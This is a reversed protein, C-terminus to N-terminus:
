ATQLNHNGGNSHGTRHVSDKEIHEDKGGKYNPEVPLILIYSGIEKFREKHKKDYLRKNKLMFKKDRCTRSAKRQHEVTVDCRAPYCKIDMCRLFLDNDEWHYGKYDEDYGGLKIWNNRSISFCCSPIFKESYGEMNVTLATVCGLFGEHAAESLEENWGLPVAVDSHMNIFINGVAYRFGLNYLGGLSDPQTEPIILQDAYARLMAELEFDLEEDDGKVLIVEFPETTNKFLLSLNKRLMDILNKDSKFPIVISIM